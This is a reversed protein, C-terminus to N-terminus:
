RFLSILFFVWGSFIVGSKKLVRVSRRPPSANVRFSTGYAIQKPRQTAPAGVDCAEEVILVKGNGNGAGAGGAAGKLVKAYACPCNPTEVQRSRKYTGALMKKPSALLLTERDM